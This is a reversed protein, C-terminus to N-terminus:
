KGFLLHQKTNTLSRFDMSIPDAKYPTFLTPTRYGRTVVMIVYLHLHSAFNIICSSPITHIM